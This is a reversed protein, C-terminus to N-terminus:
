KIHMNCKGRKRHITRLEQQQYSDSYKRKDLRMCNITIIVPLELQQLYVCYIYKAKGPLVSQLFMCYMDRPREVSETAKEFMLFYKEVEM